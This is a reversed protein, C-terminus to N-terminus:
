LLCVDSPLPFLINVSANNIHFSVQSFELHVGFPFSNLLIHCMGATFHRTTNIHHHADINLSMLM